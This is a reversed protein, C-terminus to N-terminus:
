WLDDPNGEADYGITQTEWAWVVPDQKLIAIGSDDLYLKEQQLVEGTYTDRRTVDLYEINDDGCVYVEYSNGEPIDLTGHM